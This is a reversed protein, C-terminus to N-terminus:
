RIWEAIKGAVKPHDLYGYFKHPNSGSTGAWFNYIMHDTISGVLHRRRMQKFDDRVDEDHAVFDDHAAINIWQDIINAPYRGDEGEHADYLNDQVGPEGLPNGLTIWRSVKKDRLHAYESMRSYKWLVDYSVICGMSHSILCVDEGRQLARGLPKQLRTRIASGVTRTTLYAGMDPTAWRIVNDSLGIFNLVGSVASAINDLARNDDEEKLLKKYASKSFKDRRFLRELDADFSGSEECPAGGHAPDRGRLDGRTKGKSRIMLENSIDGYYVFSFRVRGSRLKEAARPAERGLGHLIAKKVLRRKERESPKTARGHIVILHQKAAAM